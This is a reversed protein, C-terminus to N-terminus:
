YIAPDDVTEVVATVAAVAWAACRALDSRGSRPSVNLGAVGPVVQMGVVQGALQPGGDHRLRGAATLERVLPLAARTQASGASVREDVGIDALDPDGDLSAGFLLRSGPHADALTALWRAADVRRTFPRGWVFVTGDDLRGAAAGAAGRGYFDELALVLPGAPVVTLDAAADWVDRELLPEDRSTSVARVRTQPWANLWQSRFSELPDDEDPDDARGAEARRLKSELLRERKVTWHPSAARWAARDELAAGAPASWEVMLVDLPNLLSDLADARRGIMMGTAKRHATSILVLQAQEREALTPELGDEIAAPSVKWAEDVLALSATYGYVAERARLMWRSDDPAQIEEQGNVERVRYGLEAHRRAWARAPRQVEKCVSIDKGTHLVLQPEGFRDAQHLRWLALERLWWSKGLQRAMSLLVSSWILNGGADHELLRVSMLTQWWRLAHGSRERAYDVLELGYSGVASPHPVTM